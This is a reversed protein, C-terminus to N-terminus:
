EHHMTPPADAKYKKSACTYLGGCEVPIAVAIVALLLISNVYLFLLTCSLILMMSGLLRGIKEVNFESRDDLFCYPFFFGIHGFSTVVAVALLLLSILVFIWNLELGCMESAAYSILFAAAWLIGLILSANRQRLTM